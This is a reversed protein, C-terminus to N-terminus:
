LYEADRTEEPGMRSFPTFRFRVARVSGNEDPEGVVTSIIGAANTIDLQSLLRALEAPADGPHNPTQALTRHLVGVDWEDRTGSGVPAPLVVHLLWHPPKGTIDPTRHASIGTIQDARLLGDALTEVWVNTLSM